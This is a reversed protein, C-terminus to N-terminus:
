DGSKSTADSSRRVTIQPATHKKAANPDAPKVTVLIRPDSPPAAAPPPPPLAPGGGTSQVTLKPTTNPGKM